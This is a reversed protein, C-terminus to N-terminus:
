VLDSRKNDSVCATLLRFRASSIGSYVWVWEESISEFIWDNSSHIPSTFDQIVKLLSLSFSSLISVNWNPVSLHPARHDLPLASSKANRHDRTRIWTLAHIQERHRPRGQTWGARLPYGVDTPTTFAAPCQALWVIGEYATAISVQSRQKVQGM